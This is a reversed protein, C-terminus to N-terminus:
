SGTSNEMGSSLYLRNAMLVLWTMKPMTGKKVKINGGTYPTTIIPATISNNKIESSKKQYNQKSINPLAPLNEDIPIPKSSNINKQLANSSVGTDEILKTPNYNKRIEDDVTADIDFAHGLNTMGLYFILGILTNKVIMKM